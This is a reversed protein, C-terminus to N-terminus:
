KNFLNKRLVFWYISFGGGLVVLILSILFIIISLPLETMAPQNCVDCYYDKDLNIHQEQKALSGCCEYKYSHYENTHNENDMVFQKTHNNNDLNGYENHCYDCIAKQTCNAPITSSHNEVNIKDGCGCSEFHSTDDFSNMYSHKSITIDGEVFSLNNLEIAKGSFDKICYDKHIIQKLYMDTLNEELYYKGIVSLGNTFKGGMISVKCNEDNFNSFEIGKGTTFTGNYINITNYGTSYILLNTSTIQTNIINLTADSINIATNIDQENQENEIIVGNLTVEGGVINLSYSDKTHIKINNELITTGDLNSFMASIISLKTSTNIIKLNAGRNVFSVENLKNSFNFGNLDIKIINNKNFLYTYDMDSLLIVDYDQNESLEIINTRLERFNGLYSMNNSYMKVFNPKIELIVTDQINGKIMGTDLNFKVTGTGMINGDIIADTNVLLIGDQNIELNASIGIKDDNNSYSLELTGGGNITINTNQKDGQLFSKCSFYSNINLKAGSEIVMGGFAMFNENINLTIGNKIITQTLSGYTHEKIITITAQSEQTNLLAEYITIYYKTENLTEVKVAVERTCKTCIGNEVTHEVQRIHYCYDCDYDCVQSYYHEEMDQELDCFRCVQHHHTEDIKEYVFQHPDVVREYGCSENCTTDCLNDYSHYKNTSDKATDCRECAVWHQNDNYDVKTYNHVVERHYGCNDLCGTIYCLVDFTHDKKSTEDIVKCYMCIKWHETETYTESTYIFKHPDVVRTYRCGGNCTTDCDNDYSHNGDTELDYTGCYICKQIHTNDTTEYEYEHPEVVRTHGCYSDCTTDCKNTYYHEALSTEDVYDCRSCKLWHNNEDNGWIENHIPERTYLCGDNCTTDCLNDFTHRGNSNIDEIGCYKCVKWHYVQSHTDQTYIYEHPEVSRIYGCSDNCTTDCNNDYIHNNISTEDKVGCLSCKNFHNQEDYDVVTFSHNAVREYGCNDNCTEDCNDTYTHNAFNMDATCVSCKYYHQNDNYFLGAEENKIHAEEKSSYVEKNYYSLNEVLCNEYGAYVTLGNFSPYGQGVTQYFMQTGDTVGKNLKYTVEGSTIQELSVSTVISSTLSTSGSYYYCNLFENNSALYYYESVLPGSTYNTSTLTGYFFVNYMDSYDNDGMIGGNYMTGNIYANSYVNTLTCSYGYALISSIYRDGSFYSDMIGVNKIKAGLAYAILAINDTESENIYLGSITHGNGDFTNSFGNRYSTVNSSIPIWSRLSSTNSVLIGNELVKENDVIDNSLVVDFRNNETYTTTFWYLNGANKLAYYGIHSQKVNLSEYNEETVLTGKEYGNCLTCFGDSDFDHIYDGYSLTCTECTKLTTCNGTGGTHKGTEFIANCCDYVLDHCALDESQVYHKTTETHNQSDLEGYFLNCVSCKAKELCTAETLVTHNGSEIIEGCCKYCKEHVSNDDENLKYFTETTKHETSSVKTSDNSYSYDVCNISYEYVKSQNFMPKTEVPLGNDLNQGWVSNEVTNNKDLLYALKGSEIDQITVSTGSGTAGCTDLYYSNNITGSIMLPYITAYQSNKLIKGSFYCNILTSSSTQSVF